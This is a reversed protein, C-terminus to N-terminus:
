PRWEEVAAIRVSPVIPHDLMEAAGLDTLDLLRGMERVATDRSCLGDDYMRRIQDARQAPTQEYM